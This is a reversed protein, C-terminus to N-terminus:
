ASSPMRSGRQDRPSPSTYLLCTITIRDIRNCWGTFTLPFREAIGGPNCGSAHLNVNGARCAKEIQAAVEPNQKHPFWYPCPTIVHKGSELIRCMEDLDWPMPCYIVCDADTALIEEVDQTAKVGTAPLGVLDGADKGTKEDSYVKVGALELQPHEIIRKLAAAGVVGTAWEIVKYKRSM